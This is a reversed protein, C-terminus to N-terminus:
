PNKLDKEKGKRRLSDLHMICFSKLNSNIKTCTVIGLKPVLYTNKGMYTSSEKGLLYKSELLTNLMM